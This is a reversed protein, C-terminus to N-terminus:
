KQTLWGWFGARRGNRYPSHKIGWTMERFYEDCLRELRMCERHSADLLVLLLISFAILVFIAVDAITVHDGGCMM